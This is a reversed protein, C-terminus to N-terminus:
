PTDGQYLVIREMKGEGLNVDVFLLPIAEDDDDGETENQNIPANM